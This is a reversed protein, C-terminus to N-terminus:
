SQVLPLGSFEISIKGDSQIAKEPDNTMTGQTLTRGMRNGAPDTGSIRVVTTGKPYVAFDRSLNMSAVTAPMEFKVKGIKTTIDQSVVMVPKGGQSAAKVSSEGTGETLTITNGEVIVTEDNVEVSADVLIIEAM